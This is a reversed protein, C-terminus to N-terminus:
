TKGRTTQNPPLGPGLRLSRDWGGVLRSLRAAATRWRTYTIGAHKGSDPHTAGSEYRRASAMPSSKGIPPQQTGVPGTGTGTSTAGSANAGTLTLLTEGDCCALEVVLVGDALRSVRRVRGVDLLM